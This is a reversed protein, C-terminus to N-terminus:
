KEPLEPDPLEAFEIRQRVDAFRASDPTKPDNAGLEAKGIQILGNRMQRNAEDLQQHLDEDYDLYYARPSRMPGEDTLTVAWVEISGEEGTKKDPENVWSALLMFREPVLARTPWGLADRLAGYTHFYFAAVVVIAVTKLWVSFRTELCMVLLLAGLAAYGVIIGLVTENM